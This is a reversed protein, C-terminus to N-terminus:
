PPLRPTTLPEGQATYLTPAPFTGSGPQWSLWCNLGVLVTGDPWEVVLTKADWGLAVLSEQLAEVEARIPAPIPTSM